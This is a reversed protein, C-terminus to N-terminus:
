VLATKWENTPVGFLEAACEIAKEETDQLYDHTCREEEFVYLYFGVSADAIIRFERSGKVAVLAPENRKPVAPM